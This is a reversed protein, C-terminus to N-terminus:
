NKYYVRNIKQRKVKSTKGNQLSAGYKGTCSRSCFPGAKTKKSNRQDVSLKHIYSGCWVCNHQSTVKVRIADKSTHTQRDLIQLNSYSDNLKNRDKHDVTENPGLRKRIKIEMKLKAYTRYYNNRLGRIAVRYRGDKYLKPKYIKIIGNYLKNLVSKYKLLFEYRTM